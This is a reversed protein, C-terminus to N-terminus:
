CLLCCSTTDFGEFMFTNVEDCIGQHDVLGQAEAELLTDLMAYRQKKGFVDSFIYKKRVVGNYFIWWFKSKCMEEMLKLKVNKSSNRVGRKLSKVRFLMFLQYFNEKSGTIKLLGFFGILIYFQIAFEEAFNKNM